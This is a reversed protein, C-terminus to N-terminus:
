DDEPLDPYEFRSRVLRRKKQDVLTKAISDIIERSSTGMFIHKGNNFMKGLVLHLYRCDVCDHVRRRTIPCGDRAACQDNYGEYFRKRGDVVPLRCNPNTCEMIMRNTDKDLGVYRVFGPWTSGCNPCKFVPRWPKTIWLVYGTGSDNKAMFDQLKMLVTPNDPDKPLEIQWEEEYYDASDGHWSKQTHDKQLPKKQAGKPNYMFMTDRRLDGDIILVFDGFGFKVYDDYLIPLVLQWYNDGMFRIDGVVPWYRMFDREVLDIDGCPLPNMPKQSPYESYPLPYYFYHDCGYIGIYHSKGGRRLRKAEQIFTWVIASAVDFRTLDSGPVDSNMSGSGDVMIMFSGRGSPSDGPPPRKKREQVVIRTEEPLEMGITEEITADRDMMSEESWHGGVRISDETRRAPTIDEDAGISKMKELVDHRVDEFKSARWKSRDDNYITEYYGQLKTVVDDDLGVTSGIKDSVVPRGEDKERSPVARVVVYGSEEMERVADEDSSLRRTPPPGVQITGQPGTQKVLRRDNGGVLWGYWYSRPAIKGLHGFREFKDFDFHM